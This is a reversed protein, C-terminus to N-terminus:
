APPHSLVMTIKYGGGGGIAGEEGGYIRDWIDGGIQYRRVREM